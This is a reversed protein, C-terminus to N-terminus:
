YNVRFGITYHRGYSESQNITRNGAYRVDTEDTLNNGNAYVTIRAGSLDYPLEYQVSADVREQEGWIEDPSEIPSIWEDRFQYNVRASLGFKEFYASLNYVTDSTGPLGFTEGRLGTFESDTLTINAALGFGDLAPLVEGLSLVMNAEIGSIEGNKGNVSGSYEWREGAAPQYYIGADVLQKDVYIVNDVDRFFAGVSFISAPAFYWEYSVDIGMAEEVDLAPNGGSITKETVDIAAAARWEGYTPRNIGSSASLRLKQDNNLDINVHVSPLVHTMTDSVSVPAGAVNGSSTYDTQEVRAGYVLSGLNFDTSLMAYVGLIDESIRISDEEPIGAVGLYGEATLAKRLGENDFYTGGISNTTNSEWLTGTDFANFDFTPNVIGALEQIFVYGSGERSDTQIGVKLESQRGLFVLERQADVKFKDSDVDLESQVDLTLTIAYSLTNLPQATTVIPDTLSTLDYDVLTVAARSFPIPLITNFGTETKNARAEISWEGWTFDVGLTTTDTTNDYFGDQLLRNVVAPASGTVGVQSQISSYDFVFQNREESDLFENNLVSLFVRSDTEAPRYELHLGSAQDERRLKYSRLDLENVVLDAGSRDLDYERNDTIQERSNNSDFVLIGFQDNSYSIRLAQKEVDGGGLSQEGRGLDLDFGFGERDFPSFTLINIHGAVAEATMDPTVAKNVDIRKTIVAPFSDFRPIRGNEAGPVDIGDFGISTYRFPTGRLNIYRAQGQDREIALGPVRGLSDALNQDPFRGITDASIVDVVNKADRKADIAAQQADRIPSASVVVEELAPTQALVGSAFLTALSMPLIKRTSM